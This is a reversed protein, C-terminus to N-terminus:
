VSRRGNGLHQRGVVSGRAAGLGYSVAMIDEYYSSPLSVSHVVELLPLTLTPPVIFGELWQSNQHTKMKSNQDRPGGKVRGEQQLFAWIVGIWCDQLQADGWCSAIQFCFCVTQTSVLSGFLGFVYGPAFIDNKSANQLQDSTSSLISKKVEWDEWGGGINM